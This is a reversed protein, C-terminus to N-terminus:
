WGCAVWGFGLDACIVGLWLFGRVLFYYCVWVAVFCIVLLGFIVVVFGFVLVLMCWWCGFVLLGFGFWCLLCWWFGLCGGACGWRLLLVSSYSRVSFGVYCGGACNVVGFGVDVM